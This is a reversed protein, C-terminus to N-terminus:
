LEGLTVIPRVLLSQPQAASNEVESARPKTRTDAMCIMLGYPM